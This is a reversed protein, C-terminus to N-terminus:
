MYTSRGMKDDLPSSIFGKGVIGGSNRKTKWYKTYAEIIDEEDIDKENKAARYKRVRWIILGVLAFFTLSFSIIIVLVAWNPIAPIISHQTFFSSSSSIPTAVIGTATATSSPINTPLNIETSFTNSDHSVSSAVKEAQALAPGVVGGSQQLAEGVKGMAALTPTPSPSQSLVLPEGLIGITEVPYQQYPTQSLVLTPTEIGRTQLIGRPEIYPPLAHVRIPDSAMVPIVFASTVAFVTALTLMDVVFGSKTYYTTFTFGTASWFIFAAFFFYSFLLPRSVFHQYIASSLPPYIPLCVFYICFVSRLCFTRQLFPLSHLHATASVIYKIRHHTKRRRPWESGSARLHPPKFQGILPCMEHPKRDPTVLKNLGVCEEALENSHQTQNTTM